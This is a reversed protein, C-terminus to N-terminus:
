ELKLLEINRQEDTLPIYGTEETYNQGEKLVWQIFLLSLGDPKGQTVLNLGRAPPSPYREDAIATMLEAKTTYFREDEGLSGSGDIDIALIMLGYVPRGSEADFAFNLNNYGIGLPDQVVVEALGPDGYVAVGQLDEQRLDGLFAAWTEAAGCADSRTYVHIEDLLTNDGLVSGWTALEGQWIARLVSPSVGQETLSDIFPNADNVTAVVADKTVMVWFAGQDIEEPHITRSVMGIDVAGALVDAMGKGAGGASIDFEVEPYVNQFEEAWRIVMPYLAWAGSLSLTGQIEQDNVEKIGTNCGSLLLAALLLILLPKTGCNIQKLGSGAWLGVKVFRKRIMDM